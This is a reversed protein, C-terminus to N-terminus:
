RREVAVRLRLLRGNTSLEGRLPGGHLVALLGGETLAGGLLDPAREQSLGFRGLLNWGPESPAPAPGRTPSALAIRAAHRPAELGLLLVPGADGARAARALLARPAVGPTRLDSLTFPAEGAAWEPPGGAASAPPLLPHLAELTAAEGELVWTWSRGDELNPLAYASLPGPTPLGPLPPLKVGCSRLAEGVASSAAGGAVDFWALTGEPAGPLAPPPAAGAAALLAELRSGAAPAIEVELRRGEAYAWLRATALSAAVLPVRGAELTAGPRGTAPDVAPRAKLPEAGLARVLGQWPASGALLLALSAAGPVDLALALDEGRDECTLGGEGLRRVADRDAGVAAFRGHVGLEVASRELRPRGAEEEERGNFADEFAQADRLPFIALTNDPRAARPLLVFHFAGSPDVGALNPVNRQRGLAESPRLGEPRGLFWLRDVAAQGRFRLTVVAERPVVDGVRPRPSLLAYGAQYLLALALPLLLWLRPPLRRM